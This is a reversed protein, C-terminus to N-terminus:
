ENYRDEGIDRKKLTYNYMYIGRRGSQGKDHNAFFGKSGMGSKSRRKKKKYM